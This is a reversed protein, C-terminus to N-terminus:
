PRKVNNSRTVEQVTRDPDVMVSYDNATRSNRAVCPFRVVLQSGGPMREVTQDYNQTGVFSDGDLAVWTMRVVFPRIVPVANVSRIVAEYNNACGFATPDRRVSVVALDPQSLTAKIRPKVAQAASPQATLLAVLALAASPWRIM